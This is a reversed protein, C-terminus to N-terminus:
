VPAPALIARIVGSPRLRDLYEVGRKGQLALKQNYLTKVRFPEMRGVSTCRALDVQFHRAIRTDVRNRGPCWAFSTAILSGLHIPEPPSRMSYLSILGRTTMLHGVQLTLVVSRTLLTHLIRWQTQLKTANTKSGEFESQEHELRSLARFADQYDFDVTYQRETMTMHATDLGIAQAFGDYTLVRPQGGLMFEVRPHSKKSAPVIHSFTSYFEVCLEHFIDEDMTLLLEFWQPLTAPIDRYLFVFILVVVEVVTAVM